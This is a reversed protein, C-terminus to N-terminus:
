PRANIRATNVGIAHVGSAHAPLTYRRVPRSNIQAAPITIANRLMGFARAPLANQNFTRTIRTANTIHITLKNEVVSTQILLAHRNRTTTGVRTRTVTITNCLMGLAVAPRTNNNSTHTNIRTLNIQLANRLRHM